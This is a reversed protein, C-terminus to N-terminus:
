LVGRDSDLDLVRGPTMIACDQEDVAPVHTVIHRIHPWLVAKRDWIPHQTRLSAVTNNDRDPLGILGGATQTLYRQDVVCAVFGTQDHRRYGPASGLVSPPM